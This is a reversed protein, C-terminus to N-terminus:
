YEIYDAFEGEIYRRRDGPRNGRHGERQRGEGQWRELIALIYALSRKNHEVSIAIAERVWAEPYTGEIDRLQDAVLPTLAGVNQEYLTFINPREVSLDFPVHAGDTPRWDGRQIAEVAARGKDTNMFYLEDPGDLGEVTVHLLTGRVTARELADGLVAQVDAAPAALSALFSDDAEVDARRVFRVDGEMRNLRWFCYLTVKLEALHDIAPLLESFFQGPIRIAKSKGALFGGFGKM